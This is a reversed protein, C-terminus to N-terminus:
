ITNPKKYISEAVGDMAQRFLAILHDIEKQEIIFPPALLILDGATGDVHGVSSWVILGNELCKATVMEAVKWERPFPQRTVKDRVLEIGALLGTSRVDGVLEHDRLAELEAHLVEGMQKSREVLRHEKIFRVTALGAACAVPHHAFTQNHMFDMGADYIARVIEERILLASLPAYGGTLGKGALLTDPTVEYHNVGWWEGTRGMGCLIEDAIFLVEYRECIKKIRPYYEPPPVIAGGTSGLIPEALFAAVNDSGCRSIETELAAACEYDCQPYTKGWPCRYCSPPPIKPHDVYMGDFMARYSARGSVGM